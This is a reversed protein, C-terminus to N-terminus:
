EGDNRDILSNLGQVVVLCVLDIVWLIGGGLAIYKLAVGGKSDEMADLLGSLALIVCIAIPLILAGAILLLIIWRPVLDRSM